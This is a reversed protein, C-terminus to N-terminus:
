SDVILKRATEKLVQLSKLSSQILHISNSPNKLMQRALILPQLSGDAGFAETLDPLDQQCNDSIVRIMAVPIGWQQSWNLLAFGEMDVVDAQYKQGLLLKKQASCVVRDSTIGRGWFTTNGLQQFVWKTLFHDCQGA